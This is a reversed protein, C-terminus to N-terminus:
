RAVVWIFLRVRCSARGIEVTYGNSRIREVVEALTTLRPDYEVRALQAKTNATVQIVGTLASLQAAFHDAGHRGDLDSIALEIWETKMGAGGVGTTASASHERDYQGVCSESCFYLTAEGAQRKAFATSPDIEMGCVPDRERKDPARTATSM